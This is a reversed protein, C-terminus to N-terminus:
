PLRSEEIVIPAKFGRKEALARFAESKLLKDGLEHAQAISNPRKEIGRLGLEIPNLDEHLKRLASVIAARLDVDGPQQSVGAEVYRALARIGRVRDRQFQFFLGVDNVEEIGRLTRAFDGVCRRLEDCAALASPSQVLVDEAKKIPEKADAMQVSQFGSVLVVGLACTFFAGRGLLSM